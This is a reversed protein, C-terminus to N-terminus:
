DEKSDQSSSTTSLSPQLDKLSKAIAKLREQNKSSVFGKLVMEYITPIVEDVPFTDFDRAWAKPTKIGEDAAKAMAWVINVADVFELQFLPLLVDSSRGAMSSIAENVDPLTLEDKDGFVAAIGEFLSVLMPMLTSVIDKGFQDRYEMTWAVNNSLRVERSGIKIIKEM